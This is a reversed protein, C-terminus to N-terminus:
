KFIRRLLGKFLMLRFPFFPLDFLRASLRRRTAFFHGDAPDGAEEPEIDVDPLHTGTTEWFLLVLRLGNTPTLEGRVLPDAEAEMVQSMIERRGEDFPSCVQDRYRRDQPVALCHRTQGIRTCILLSCSSSDLNKDCSLLSFQHLFDASTSHLM